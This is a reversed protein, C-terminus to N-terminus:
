GDSYLACVDCVVSMIATGNASCLTTVTYTQSFIIILHASTGSLSTLYGVERIILSTRVWWAWQNIKLEGKLKENPKMNYVLSTGTLKQSWTFNDYWMTHTPYIEGQRYSKDCRLM